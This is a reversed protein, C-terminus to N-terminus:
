NSFIKSAPSAFIKTEGIVSKTIVKKKNINHVWLIKTLNSCYKAFKLIMEESLAEM